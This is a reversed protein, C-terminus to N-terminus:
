SIEVIWDAILGASTRPQEIHAAHGADPVPRFTGQALAAAMAQGIETFKDDRAGALVLVPIEIQPLTSWLPAQTGTGALELSSALGDPTNRYRQARGAPDVPLGAFLEANLWDDVFERTGTRRLTDARQQDLTRRDARAAEDDIGPTAGILVLADLATTDASAAVLAFRGGMSYGVYIGPGAAVALPTDALGTRDTASLGHGPLDAFALTPWGLREATLHACRHWHHHTQTFGHLFVLRAPDSRAPM